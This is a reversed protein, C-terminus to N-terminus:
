ARRVVWSRVMFGLVVGGGLLGLSRWDCAILPRERYGQKVWGAKGTGPEYPIPPGTEDTSVIVDGALEPINEACFAFLELQGQQSLLTQGVQHVLVRGGEDIQIERCDSPIHIGPHLPRNFQGVRLCLEGHASVTMTGGRLFQEHENFRDTVRFYGPGDIALDYANDTRVLHQKGAGVTTLGMGILPVIVCLLMRLSFRGSRM